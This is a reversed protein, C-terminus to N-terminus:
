GDLQGGVAVDDLRELTAIIGARNRGPFGMLRLGIRNHANRADWQETVLTGGEVPEFIYRWIHGNFHRWALQRGDEFEVVTNVIKYNAALHMDMSFKAGKSLREPGGTRLARVSGSGDILPHKAPDAVVDFLSQPDANITRSESVLYASM